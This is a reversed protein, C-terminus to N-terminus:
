NLDFAGQEYGAQWGLNYARKEITDIMLAIHEQIKTIEGAQGGSMEAYTSFLETLHERPNSVNDTM